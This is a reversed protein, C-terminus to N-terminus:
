KLWNPKEKKTTIDEIYGKNENGFTENAFQDLRAPHAPPLDHEGRNKANGDNRGAM